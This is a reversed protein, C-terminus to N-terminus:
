FEASSLDTADEDGGPEGDSGYSIIEFREGERGPVLYIFEGGWPDAPVTRRDLYGGAPYAAPVPPRAPKRVLADLGQEMTPPRGHETIYLQVATELQELQLRATKVRAEDQHRIVNVSVVGALSVLILLVILVEILTFGAARNNRHRTKM